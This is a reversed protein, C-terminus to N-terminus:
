RGPWGALAQFFAPMDNYRNQWTTYMMGIIDPVGQVKQTWSRVSEVPNGDYYGAIMQSHGRGAFFQLGEKGGSWNMIVVEKPLGEWSGYWWGNVLYYGPGDGKSANHFPTFMDSWTYVRADPAYKKVIEAARSVHRALLEGPPLPTGEPQKEWGAIRIEDYNMFYGPANWAASVRKMQDDMLQFVKPDELSVLVQDNYIRQPHFYSVLITDGNRIRSGPTLVIDPGKHWAFSPFPLFYTKEFSDKGLKPDLVPKFDRGEEYTVSRDASTVTFPKTGSRLLNALGAPEITLDDFWITGARASSVGVSIEIQSAELTNFTVDHMTWDQTAAVRLNTYCHRRKGDQSTILLYDEPEAALGSSKIWITLRYYQFPKVALAQWVRCRGEAQRPLRAFNGMVLSAAGSHRVKKDLDMNNGASEQITWGVPGAVTAEDFGGGALAPVAAPDYAAAGNKVVFPADKVPLGAALNMDQVLYGGSYGFPFVAPIVAIGIDQAAKRARAVNRHYSQPLLGMFGFQPDKVQMATCGLGKARRMLAIFDDVNKDVLFNVDAYVWKEQAGAAGAPSVLALVVPLLIVLIGVRM